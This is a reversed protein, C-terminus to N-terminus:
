LLITQIRNKTKLEQSGGRKQPPDIIFSFIFFFIDANKSVVKPINRVILVLKMVIKVVIKPTDTNLVFCRKLLVKGSITKPTGVMFSSINKNKFDVKPINNITLILTM